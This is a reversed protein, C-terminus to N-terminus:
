NLGKQERGTNSLYIAFFTIAAGLYESMLTTRHFILIDWILAFAPQLLLFFGARSVSTHALGKAILLWGLIQCVVGYLILLLWDSPNTAMFSEHRHHSVFALVVSSFFCIIALNSVSKPANLCRQSERLFIIYFSYATLAAVGLWIGNRYDDGHLNWQTGVLLYMGLMAFPISALYRWNISDKFWLCGILGLAFVQMNVIITALGPGIYLISQHWFSLDSAFLIGAIMSLLFSKPSGFFKQKQLLAIIVLGICGFFMRYFGDVTPGTSTLKVFVGSFSIMVSGLAIQLSANKIM